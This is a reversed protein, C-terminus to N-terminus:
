VTYDEHQLTPWMEERWGKAGGIKPLVFDVFYIFAENNFKVELDTGGPLPKQHLKLLEELTPVLHPVLLNQCQYTKQLQLKDTELMNNAFQKM